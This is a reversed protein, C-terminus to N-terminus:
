DENLMAVVVADQNAGVPRGPRKPDDSPGYVGWLDLWHRLRADRGVVARWGGALLGSFSRVLLPGFLNAAANWDKISRFAGSGSGGVLVQVELVRSAGVPVIESICVVPGWLVGAAALGGRYWQVETLAYVASAAPILLLDPRTQGKPPVFQM